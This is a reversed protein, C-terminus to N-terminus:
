VSVFFKSAHVLHTLRMCKRKFMKKPMAFTWEMKFVPASLFNTYNVLSRHNKNKLMNERVKEAANNEIFGNECLSLKLDSCSKSFLLNIQLNFLVPM